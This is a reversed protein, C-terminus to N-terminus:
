GNYQRTGLRIQGEKKNEVSMKSSTMVSSEIVCNESETNTMPNVKLQNEIM